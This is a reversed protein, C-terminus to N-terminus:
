HVAQLLEERLSANTKFEGRSATTVTRSGPKRIGRMSMCLHEAEVMIFVGRAKLEYELTDAVENTMREQLQPRKAILDVLRALKSLGTVVGDHPLYAVHAVGFFPLLHHECLSYFPIDKILVFEEHDVHFRTALVDGPNQHLGSLIDAYMRAVRAPTDRLGERDPDEGVAELIMTVAQRIKAEDVVAPAPVFEETLNWEETHAAANDPGKTQKM